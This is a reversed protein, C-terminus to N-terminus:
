VQPEGHESVPEYLWMGIRSEDIGRRSSWEGDRRRRIIEALIEEPDGDMEYLALNPAHAELMGPAQTPSVRYRQAGAIGPVALVEEIHEAYWENFAAEEGPQATVMAVLIPNAM